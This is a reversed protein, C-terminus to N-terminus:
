WGKRRSIEIQLLRRAFHSIQDPTWTWTGEVGQEKLYQRESIWGSDYLIATDDKLIQINILEGREKDNGKTNIDVHLDSISTRAYTREVSVLLVISLLVRITFHKLM